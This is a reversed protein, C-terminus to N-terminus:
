RARVTRRRVLWHSGLAVMGLVAVGALASGGGGGVAGARATAAGGGGATEGLRRRFAARGPDSRPALSAGALGFPNSPETARPEPFPAYLGPGDTATADQAVAAPAAALLAGLAIMLLTRAVPAM